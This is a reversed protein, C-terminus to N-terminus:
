IAIRRLRRISDNGHGNNIPISIVTATVGPVLDFRDIMLTLTVESWTVFTPFSLLVNCSLSNSEGTAILRFSLSMACMDRKDLPKGDVYTAPLGAQTNRKQHLTLRPCLTVRPLFCCAGNLRIREAKASSCNQSCACVSDGYVAATSSLRRRSEHINHM